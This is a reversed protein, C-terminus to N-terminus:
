GDDGDLHAAIHRIAKLMHKQVRWVPIDLLAAVEAYSYGEVRNLLFIDLTEPPLRELIVRWYGVEQRAAVDRHPDDEAKVDLGEEIPVTVNAIKTSGRKKHDRLLNDAVRTLYGGPSLITAPGSASIFRAFTEHALDHADDRNGLKRFFFRILRPIERRYIEALGPSRDEIRDIPDPLERAVARASKTSMPEADFGM